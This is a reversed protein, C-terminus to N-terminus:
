AVLGSGLLWVRGYGTDGEFNLMSRVMATQKKVKLWKRMAHAVKSVDTTPCRVAQGPNLRDFTAHYKFEPAARHQPIVDDVIQLKAPDIYRLGKQVVPAPKPMSRVEPAPMPPKYPTSYDEDKLRKANKRAPKAPTQMAPETTTTTIAPRAGQGQFPNYGNAFTTQITM